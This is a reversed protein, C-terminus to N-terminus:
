LNFLGYAGRMILGALQEALQQPQWKEPSNLVLQAGADGLALIVNAALAASNNTDKIKLFDFFAQIFGEVRALNEARAAELRKYIEPDSAHRIDQIARWSHPNEQVAEFAAEFAQALTKEPDSFDPNDPFYNLVQKRMRIEERDILARFLARKDPFCDYLVPKTVGAEKAIADMSASEFGVQSFLPLAADLILPRRREAGLHPARKRSKKKTASM